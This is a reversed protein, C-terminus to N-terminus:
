TIGKLFDAFEITIRTGKAILDWDRKVIM